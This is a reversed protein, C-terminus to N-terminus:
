NREAYWVVFREWAAQLESQDLYQWGPHEAKFVRLREQNRHTAPVVDLSVSKNLGRRFQEEFAWSCEFPLDPFSHRGARKAAKRAKEHRVRAAARIRDLEAQEAATFRMSDPLIAM